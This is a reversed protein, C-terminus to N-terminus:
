LDEEMPEMAEQVPAANSSYLHANRAGLRMRIRGATALSEAASRVATSRWSGKERVLEELRAQSVEMGGLENLVAEVAATATNAVTTGDPVDLWARLDGADPVFRLMAAVDGVAGIVGERDKAVKVAAKGAKARSWTERVEVNYAAGDVEGLKAGSGRAWRGRADKDKPVHDLVVVAAGAACLPWVMRELWGLVEAARDEDLGERAMAKAAGDIIVLGAGLDRVVRVAGPGTTQSGGSPRAYAIREVDEETARLRALRGGVIRRSGEYDLYLSTVGSQAGALCAVLALWTKGCGPEGMVWHLLGPYLLAQGDARYLLSPTIEPEDGRIVAGLDEVVLAPRAGAAAQRAEDLARAVAEDDGEQAAHDLDAAVARMHRRRSHAAVISAYGAAGAISPTSGMMGVLDGALDPGGAAELLGDSRLQDIVTVVDVGRGAGFLTYIAAAIHSHAPHYFDDPAVTAMAAEIAAAGAVPVMMAGILAREADLDSPPPRGTGNTSPEGLARLGRSSGPGHRGTTRPETATAPM